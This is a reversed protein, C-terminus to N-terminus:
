RHVITRPVKYKKAALLYEYKGSRIDEIAKIMASKDWTHCKKSRKPNTEKHSFM